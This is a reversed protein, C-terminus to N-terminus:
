HLQETKIGPFREVKMDAHEAETNRLTSDGAVM